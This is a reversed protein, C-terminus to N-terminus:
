LMTVGKKDVDYWPFVWLPEILLSYCKAMKGIVLQWLFPSEKTSLVENGKTVFLVMDKIFQIQIQHNKRYPHKNGFYQTITLPRVMKRKKGNLRGHDVVVVIVEKDYKTNGWRLMNKKCM